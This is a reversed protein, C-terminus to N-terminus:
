PTSVGAPVLTPSGRTPSVLLRVRIGGNTAQWAEDLPLRLQGDLRRDASLVALDWGPFRDRHVRAFRSYLDRLGDREGLRVGYPPNAILLGSAVGAPPEVESVTQRAFAVDPAVEARGANEIAMQVAGADRDSGQIPVPSSALERDRAAGLHGRWRAADFDPWRMFGFSRNRGPAMRRAILAAEIAITGSGCFPDVLARHGAWGAGALMAAALTERLPAATVAQRYGRRHLLDGSTDASITCVDHQFRVVLLQADSAPEADPDDGTDLVASTRAVVAGAVRQAVADSHYLRSKRCTVRLRFPADAALVREWEVRRALRELEGFNTARFEALRVIVRSAIRLHLNARQIDDPSAQFTAGGAIVRPRAIGLDRLERAVLDELGPPAVAL